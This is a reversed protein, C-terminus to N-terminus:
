SPAAGMEIKTQSSVYDMREVLETETAGTITITVASFPWASPRERTVGVKAFAQVNLVWPVDPVEVPSLLVGRDVYIMLFATLLDTRPTARPLPRGTQVAIMAAAPNIGTQFQFSPAIGGGGFRAAIECFVPGESTLIVDMHTVGSFDPYALLVQRNFSLLAELEPGPPFEADRYESLTEWSTTPTLARGATAAVVEGAVTLADVHCVRGDIFEEVEFRELQHSPVRSMFRELDQVTEVFHIDVSGAGSHPKVVVKGYKDLLEVAADASFPRFDPVRVGHRSLNEKMRLKNRFLEAEEYQQGALGFQTRLRAATMVQTETLAAVYEAGNESVVRSAEDELSDKLEDVTHVAVAGPWASDSARREYTVVHVEHEDLFSCWDPSPDLRSYFNYGLDDILM